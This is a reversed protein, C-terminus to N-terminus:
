SCLGGVVGTYFICPKKKAIIFLDAGLNSPKKRTKVGVALETLISTTSIEYEQWYSSLSCVLAPLFM